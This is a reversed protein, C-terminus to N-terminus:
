RLVGEKFLGGDDNSLQNVEYLFVKNRFGEAVKEKRFRPGLLGLEEQTDLDTLGMYALYLHFHGRKTHARVDIWKGREFMDPWPVIGDDKFTAGKNVRYNWFSEFWNVPHRVGIIIPTLPFALSFISYTDPLEASSPCKLSSLTPQPFPSHQM